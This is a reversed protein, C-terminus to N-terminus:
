EGTNIRVEGRDSIYGFECDMLSGPKKDVWLHFVTDVSLGQYPNIKFEFDFKFPKSTYLKRVTGTRGDSSTASCILEYDTDSTFFGSLISVVNKSATINADGPAQM